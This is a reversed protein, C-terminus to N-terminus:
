RYRRFRAIPEGAGVVGSNVTGVCLVDPDPARGRFDRVEHIATRLEVTEINKWRKERRAAVDNTSGELEARQLRPRKARAGRSLLQVHVDGATGGVPREDTEDEHDILETGVIAGRAEYRSRM